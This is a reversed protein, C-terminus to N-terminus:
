YETIYCMIGEGVSYLFTWEGEPCDTWSIHEERITINDWNIYSVTASMDDNVTLKVVAFNSPFKISGIETAVKDLFWFAEAKECFHKVGDTYIFNRVFFHRYWHESGTFNSMYNELDKSKM